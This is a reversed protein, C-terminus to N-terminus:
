SIRKIQPNMYASTRTMHAAADFHNTAARELSPDPYPTYMVYNQRTSPRSVSSSQFRGDLKNFNAGARRLAESAAHAAQLPSKDGYNQKDGAPEDPEPNGAPHSTPDFTNGEIVARYLLSINGDFRGARLPRDSTKWSNLPASKSLPNIHANARWVGGSDNHMTMALGSTEDRQGEPAGAYGFGEEWLEM